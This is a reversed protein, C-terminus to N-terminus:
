RSIKAKSCQKNRCSLGMNTSGKEQQWIKEKEQNRRQSLSGQVQIKPDGVVGYSDKRDFGIAGKWHKTFINQKLPITKIEFVELCLEVILVM